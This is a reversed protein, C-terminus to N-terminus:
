GIPRAAPRAKGRLSTAPTILSRAWLPRLPSDLRIRPGVAAAWQAHVLGILVAPAVLRMATVMMFLLAYISFAVVMAKAWPGRARLFALVLMALMAILAGLGLLGHEAVLRTYETHAARTDGMSARAYPSMGPGVGLVPNQAWVALDHAAIDDRGTSNSDSFRNRLKGDTFADLAPFAACAGGALLLVVTVARGGSGRWTILFPLTALLCAGFLYLGTRSLTVAAQGLLWLTLFAFLWRLPRAQSQGVYCFVAILAGLGLMASVQNPGFGGSAASTSGSGFSVETTALRFFAIFAIGLVPGLLTLGLKQFGLPTLTVRSFLMACLTLCFPAALNFSLQKRAEDFPLNLVTLSSSPVLLAFYMGPLWARSLGGQRLLAALGVMWIAHKATEWPVPTKCMRWLVEAGLVYGIWRVLRDLETRQMCLYLGYLLTGSVHALAVAKNSKMLLALPLHAGLFVLIFPLSWFREAKPSAVRPTPTVAFPRQVRGFAARFMPTARTLM